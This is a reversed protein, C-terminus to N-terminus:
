DVVRLTLNIRGGTQLLSSTGSRLRDIGHHLLRADGALVAVDGSQLWISETSGGREINGIRFLAADGLSISVVPWNFDAEDKDQHLGMRAGEAYWNVLCCEPMKTLGTVARWVTLVSEPIAPWPMGAPHLKEYRYGHRDSFWGYKGASTMRVSMPKGFRTEPSFLPAADIVRGIDEAVAKQTSRDLWSRFIQVGRLNLTPEAKSVSQGNGM